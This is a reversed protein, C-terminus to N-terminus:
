SGVIARWARLADSAARVDHTRIWEVGQTACWLEAALTAPGRERASRAPAAGLFSKRSVGVCLPRGVRARLEAIRRLVEFSARPESSLFLGMGPDLITRERRVGARELEELRQEFFSAIREIWDDCEVAAREARAENSTSHMVILECASGAVAEVARPDRLATVDNICAAGLELARAMVDPRFTDVSVEVGAAVLERVIPELRRLEEAADVVEAEPHTSQAGVDVRAAGHAVLEHARSIAASADLWEGGDSFSDRTVNLV